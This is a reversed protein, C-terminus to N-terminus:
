SNILWVIGGIATLFWLPGIPWMCGRWQNGISGILTLIGGLVALAVGGWIAGLKFTSGLASAWVGGAVVGSIGYWFMAALARGIHEHAGDGGNM